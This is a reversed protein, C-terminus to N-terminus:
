PTKVTLSAEWMLLELGIKEKGRDKRWKFLLETAFMHSPFKLTICGTDRLVLLKHQGGVLM